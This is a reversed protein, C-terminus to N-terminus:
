WAAADVPNKADLPGADIATQVKGINIETLDLQFAADRFGRKPLRRHLPM